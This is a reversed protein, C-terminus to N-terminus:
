AGPSGSRSRGSLLARVLGLLLLVGAIILLWQLAEVVLGILGLIVAIVILAILLGSM